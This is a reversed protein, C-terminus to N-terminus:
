SILYYSAYPRCREKKLLKNHLFVHCSPCLLITKSTPVYRIHHVVLKEKSGCVFCKMRDMRGHRSKRLGIQNKTENWLYFMRECKEFDWEKKTKLIEVVEKAKLIDSIRKRGMRRSVQMCYDHYDLWAITDYKKNNVM